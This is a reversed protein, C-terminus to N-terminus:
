QACKAEDNYVKRKLARNIKRFIASCIKCEVFISCIDFHSNIDDNKLTCCISKAYSIFWDLATPCTCLPLEISLIHRKYQQPRTM